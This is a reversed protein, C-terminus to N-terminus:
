MPIQFFIYLLYCVGFNINIYNVQQLLSVIGMVIEFETKLLRSAFAFCWPNAFKVM